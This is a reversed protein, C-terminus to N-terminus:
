FDSWKNSPRVTWGSSKIIKKSVRRFGNIINPDIYEVIVSHFKHSVAKLFDSIVEFKKFATKWM